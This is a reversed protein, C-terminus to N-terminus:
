LNYTLLLQVMVQIGEIVRCAIFDKKLLVSVAVLIVCCPCSFLKSVKMSSELLM